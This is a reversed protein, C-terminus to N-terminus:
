APTDPLKLHCMWLALDTGKKPYFDTGVTVM